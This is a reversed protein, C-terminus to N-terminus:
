GGSPCVQIWGAIPLCCDRGGPLKCLGQVLSMWSSASVLLLLFQLEAAMLSSVVFLFKSLILCCYIHELPLLLILVGSPCSLSISIHHPFIQRTGSNLLFTNVKEGSLITNATPNDNIGRKIHLYTGESPPSCLLGSWYEKRSFGMFPLAQHHCLSPCSELSKAHLCTCTKELVVKTLIKIRSSHQIKDFVREADISIITLIKDKGKNTHHIVSISKCINFSGQSGPFCVAQDHRIIRKIYLQTWTPWNKDLIEIDINM